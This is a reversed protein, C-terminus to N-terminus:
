SSVGEQVAATLAGVFEDLDENIWHVRHKEWYPDGSEEGNCLVFIPGRMRESWNEVLKSFLRKVLADRPNSGLFFLCRGPYGRVVNTIEHSMRAMRDWLIDHDDETLVLTEVQKYTGRVHVLLPDNGPPVQVDVGHVARVPRRSLDYAEQLLGDFYLYFCAPVNWGAIRSLLAPPKSSSYANRIADTLEFFEQSKQVLQCVWQLIIADMWDGAAKCVEFDRDRTYGFSRALTQALEQAPSTASGSRMQSATLVRPGIVPVCRGETLARVLRDPLSIRPAVHVLPVPEAAKLPQIDLVRPGGLLFLVPTVFSRAADETQNRFLAERASELALDVRGPSRGALFDQYFRKSFRIAAGDEIEYRMAIVSPVGARLFFPGLGSMRRRPDPMAGQCCNLVALRVGSNFFLNAFAEGDLWVEDLAGDGNLRVVTRGNKTQEGHGIFHFIDWREARLRDAVADPTVQGTLRKLEVRDEMPRVAEELNRWEREADLGSGSPIVALVRIKGEVPPPDEPAVVRAVPARAVAYGPHCSLFGFGEEYNDHYLAEWPLLELQPHQLSLRFVYRNGTKERRLNDFLEGVEGRMLGEWLNVGVEKLDDLPCNGAEIRELTNSLHRDAFDLAFDARAERGDATLHVQFLGSDPDLDLRFDLILDMM